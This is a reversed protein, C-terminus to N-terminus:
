LNIKGELFKKLWIASDKLYRKQTTYDTYVIGFRKSYGEAWEFNDMLTWIFYGKLDVGDKIAKLANEFHSKLYNIRYTDHVKGNEIKDPGAMGNETIYLPTKYRNYIKLLMDYLGEPYIEWGMETKELEGEITKFMFPEEPAYKVLQRTYYNIGFFDIKKSIIDMDNEFIDIGNRQLIARANEPYRGFIIPDYFWGNTLEDVLLAVYFDEETEDAPEVKTTVNTIGIKGDKVLDRFAEVSYGHARLLNHAAKIAEQLNKHGPAHIGYFYGLFSSCWPENLTIWHKVRDGFNQFLISSYDQFYLAIDDNLWGGKEYLFLPLDWHYITIFPIINNELLKDILKNYFDIGKENKEKTNKMVRPWSISFRYADVGIDKMIKIDEEYRHYHDCAVDGNENNKIKGPTHSFVDWISPVKGDENYAGEIKYSATAVGFIFDKPFDNREM